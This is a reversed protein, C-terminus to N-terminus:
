NSIQYQCMWVKPGFCVEVKLNQMLEAALYLWELLCIDLSIELGANQEPVGQFQFVVFRLDSL